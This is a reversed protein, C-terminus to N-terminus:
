RVLTVYGSVTEEERDTYKVTCIYFYTGAVDKNGNSTGDWGISAKNTEFVVNGWRNMIKGEIPVNCDTSFYFADNIQDGNPTFVNPVNLVCLEETIPEEIIVSPGNPDGLFNSVQVVNEDVSVTYIATTPIIVGLGAPPIGKVAYTGPDLDMFFYYGANDTVMTSVLTNSSNRLEMTWGFSKPDNGDEIGNQNQDLRSYGAIIGRQICSNDSILASSYIKADLNVGMIVQKNRHHLKLKYSGNTLQLTVNVQTPNNMFNAQSYVYNQSVLLTQVGQDDELYLEAWNDANLSLDFIVDVIQGPIGTCVCFEREFIYQITSLDWNDTLAQSTPYANIYKSNTGAYTWPSTIPITIAPGGINSVWGVPDAPAQILRWMPDLDYDNLLSVTVPNYGTSVILQNVPGTCIQSYSVSTSAVLVILILFSKM